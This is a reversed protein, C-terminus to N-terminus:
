ATVFYEVLVIKSKIKSALERMVITRKRAAIVQTGVKLFTLYPMKDQSTLLREVAHGSIWRLILSYVVVILFLNTIECKTIGGKKKSM